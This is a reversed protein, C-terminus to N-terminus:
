PMGKEAIRRLILQLNTNIGKLEGAMQSVSNATANVKDYLEGLDAHTPAREILGTLRAITKDQDDMRRDFDTRIDRFDKANATQIAEFKQNVQQFDQATATQIAEFKQDVQKNRDGYRVYLWLGSSALANVVQFGVVVWFKM